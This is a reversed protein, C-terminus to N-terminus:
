RWDSMFIRPPASDCAHRLRSLLTLRAVRDARQRLHDGAAIAHAQHVGLAATRRAGAARGFRHGQHSRSGSALIAVPARLSVRGGGTANAATRAGPLMDPPTAPPADVFPPFDEPRMGGVIG